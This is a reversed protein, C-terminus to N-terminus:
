GRSAERLSESELPPRIFNRSRKQECLLRSGEKTIARCRKLDLSTSNPNNLPIGKLHSIKLNDAGVLSLHRLKSCNKSHVRM